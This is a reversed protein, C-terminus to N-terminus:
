EERFPSLGLNAAVLKQSWQNTSAKAITVVLTEAASDYQSSRTAKSGFNVIQRRLTVLKVLFKHPNKGEISGAYLQILGLENILQESILKVGQLM